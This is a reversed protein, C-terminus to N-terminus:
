KKKREEEGAKLQVSYSVRKNLEKPQFGAVEKYKNSINDLEEMTIVDDLKEFGEPAKEHILELFSTESEERNAKVIRNVTERRKEDYVKLAASLTPQLALELALVRGDIITQTGGNAGIPIMPHAADGLLAVNDYVWSDLPQRDIMPYQYVSEANRILDPVNMFDYKFDLFPAMAEELNEVEINWKEKTLAINQKPTTKMLAVWNVLSEGDLEAEKCIPYIVMENEVPGIITMTRGGLFPKMRTLGRLMTIGMWAPSGENTLSKRIKSHVGDCGVILDAKITILKKSSSTDNRVLLEAWAGGDEDSSGCNIVKHDTHIRNGGLRSQVARHLLGLLKGRHISYQPWNYGAGLGRAEGYIFQGNKHFYLIEKTLIGTRELEDGLGLEILERVGHPQINIGVGLEALSTSEYIDINHFGADVLSLAFVMGGIGGGVIAIKIAKSISM